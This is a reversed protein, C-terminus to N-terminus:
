ARGEEILILDRIEESPFRRYIEKLTALSLGQEFHPIPSSEPGPGPGVPLGATVPEDPRGSPATLPVLKSPDAMPLAELAQEQQARQGYQQSPVVDTM